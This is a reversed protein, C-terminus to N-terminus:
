AHSAESTQEQVNLAEVAKAIGKAQRSLLRRAEALERRLRLILADKPRITKLIRRYLTAYDTDSDANAPAASPAAGRKRTPVLEGTDPDRRGLLRRKSRPQKLEKDWYSHSDYVYTIGRKKNHVDIIAM